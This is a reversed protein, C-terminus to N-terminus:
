GFTFAFVEIGPSFELRLLYNQAQNLQILNYLMDKDVITVGNEVDIGGRLNDILKGDLFVKVEGVGSNPPRMVLFVKSAFFNYELVANAGARSYENDVMWEGGLSFSNPPINKSLKFTKNGNTVGGGPYLYQMRSSGLYTEPSNRTKPTQDVAEIMDDSVSNGAERLLEQIAKEMEDYEGEGFHVKRIIGKSDALYKAPWYRNNYANWTAYDNDQAVPYHINYQKIAQLVNDTKKEFEFEPTHIGVVVFGQNKYKEYWGTVFPLTRICNICTYTWFDVLVVKGLLSQMTLPNDTNLWKTIGAFEPANGLNPLAASSQPMEKKLDIKMNRLKDLQDKVSNASELKYLFNSYSPIADLLKVQIVKDYNTYIAVATLIMIIGFIQQIRGTYKSLFRTKSFLHSGLTAFIFLPIGLGIVYVITVLVIEFNVTRTAALTAITALIPGACPSWVLGLSFGIILGGWFGHHSNSSFGFSRSIRSVFGELIRSLAPIVLTLGLFGIVIVAILRLSNPDFNFLKVFYSITLTFLAFSIMIGITIGLPKRKEGTVISSFIIPLLPWICPALITVFGSLFAFFLLILM